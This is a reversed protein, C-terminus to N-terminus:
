GRRFVVAGAMFALAIAQLAIGAGIFALAETM